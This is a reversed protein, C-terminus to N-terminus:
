MALKCNYMARLASPINIAVQSPSASQSQHFATLISTACLSGLGNLCAEGLAMAMDKGELHLELARGSDSKRM